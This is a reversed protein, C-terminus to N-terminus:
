ENQLDFYKTHKTIQKYIVWFIYFFPHYKFPLIHRLKDTFGGFITNNLKTKKTIQQYAYQTPSSIKKVNKIKKTLFLTGLRSYPNVFFTNFTKQNYDHFRYGSPRTEVLYSEIIKFGNATYFDYFFTPNIQYFGHNLFNNTPIMQLVYGGIKTVNVTNAMVSKIDFIHELTGCDIILNFFNKYKLPFAKELDHIIRPQDFDFKDVDYYDQFSIGLLKFFTKAHVFFDSQPNIQKLGLSSSAVIDNTNLPKLKFERAWKQLTDASAYIDQNGFTLVPGRFHYKKSRSIIYKLAPTTLGM